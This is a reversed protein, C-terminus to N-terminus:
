KESVDTSLRVGDHVVVVIVGVQEFAKVDELVEVLHRFDLLSLHKALVELAVGSDFDVVLGEGPADLGLSGELLLALLLLLLSFGFLLFGLFVRGHASSQVGLKCVLALAVVLDSASVGDVALALTFVAACALLLLALAVVLLDAAVGQGALALLILAVEIGLLQGLDDMQLVDGEVDLFSLKHADDTLDSSSFGVEEVSEKSVHIVDSVRDDLFSTSVVHTEHSFLVASLHHVRDDAV